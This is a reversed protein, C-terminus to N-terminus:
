IIYLVDAFRAATPSPMKWKGLHFYPLFISVYARIVSTLHIKYSGYCVKETNGSVPILINLLLMVM